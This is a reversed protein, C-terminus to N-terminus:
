KCVTESRYSNCWCLGWVAVVCTEVLTMHLAFNMSSDPVSRDKMIEVMCIRPLLLSAGVCGPIWVSHLDKIKLRTWFQHLSNKEQSCYRWCLGM